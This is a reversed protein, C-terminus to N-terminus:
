GGPQRKLRRWVHKLRASNAPGIRARMWGKLMPMVPFFQRLKRKTRHGWTILADSAHGRGRLHVSWAHRLRWRDRRTMRRRPFACSACIPHTHRRILIEEASLELYSGIALSPYNPNACCTFVGGGADISVTDMVLPCVEDPGASRHTASFGRLRDRFADVDTGGSWLPHGVGDIREFAIGLRRAYDALLPGQERNYDFEILRLVVRTHCGKERSLAALHELNHRVLALDGGRHNLVHTDQEFGSVSVILTDLGARVVAALLGERGAFSLTTSIECGLRAQKVIRVCEALDRNLFPETWNYLAINDFGQDRARAVIQRFQDLPMRRATNALQRTGRACTQCRLHCADIVDIYCTTM